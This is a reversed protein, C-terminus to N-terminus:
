TKGANEGDSFLRKTLDRVKEVLVDAAAPQCKSSVVEYGGAAYAERTPLYGIYGNAIGVVFTMRPSQQKITLGIEVFVEAPIAVFASDGLRFGQLEIPLHGDPLDLAERAYFNTISAYLRQTKAAMIQEPPAGEANLRALLDDAERLSKIAEGLSPYNKLPLNIPMTLAALAPADTTAIDPLAALAADALLRGLKAAREFTRGPTIVGIASLESSHGMSINGQTGNVFMAFGDASISKEIQEISFSPFDGTVLLNNPGLVTPHCSYNIVVARTRGFSDDIKIIGVEEDVPRQDPSRRNVGVGAVRAVGVGVRASFRNEWANAVSQAISRALSDMYSPDLSEDPNFFTTITVPGAHTHTSAIMVAEASIGINEQVNERVRQIFDSSLALLDVSVLAVATENNVLVVARAFLDDHIGQSVGERAAFGALPAGVPPSICVKSFGATLM